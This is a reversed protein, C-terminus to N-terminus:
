MHFYQRRGNSVFSDVNQPNKFESLIGRFNDDLPRKNYNELFAYLKGCNTPGDNCITRIIQKEDHDINKNKREVLDIVKRYSKPTPRGSIKKISSVKGVPSFFSGSGNGGIIKKKLKRKSQKRTKKSYKSKGLSRKKQNNQKNAPKIVKKLTKNKFAM